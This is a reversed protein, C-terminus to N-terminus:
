SGKKIVIEEKKHKNLALDSITNIPCIACWTRPRFIWAMLLGLVTTTFMM